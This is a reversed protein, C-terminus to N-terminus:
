GGSIPPLLTVTEGDRLTHTGALESAIGQAGVAILVSRSPRGDVSFLYPKLEPISAVLLTLADLLSPATGCEVSITSRGAARGLQAELQFRVATM